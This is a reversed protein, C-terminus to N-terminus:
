RIRRLRAPRWHWGPADYAHPPTAALRDIAEAPAQVVPLRAGLAYRHGNWEIARVVDNDDVVVRHRDGVAFRPGTDRVMELCPVVLAFANGYRITSTGIAIGCYPAQRVETITGLVEHTPEDVADINAPASAPVSQPAPRGARWAAAAGAAMVCGLLLWRGRVVM